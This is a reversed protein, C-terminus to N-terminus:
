HRWQFSKKKTMLAKWWSEFNFADVPLIRKIPKTKKAIFALFQSKFPKSVLIFSNFPKSFEIRNIRFNCPKPLEIQIQLTKFAWNAPNQLSLKFHLTKFAWNSTAPIQFSLKSSCPKSLEIQIQLSKFAWTSRWSVLVNVFVSWCNTEDRDVGMWWRGGGGRMLLLKCIMRWQFFM